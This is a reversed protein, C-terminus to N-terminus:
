MIICSHELYNHLVFFTPPLLLITGGKDTLPLRLPTSTSSKPPRSLDHHAPLGPDLNLKARKLHDVTIEKTKGNIDLWLTSTLIVSFGSPVMMLSRLHLNTATVRCMYTPPWISILLSILLMIAM